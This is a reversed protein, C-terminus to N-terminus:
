SGTVIYTNTASARQQVAFLSNASAARTVTTTATAGTGNQLLVTGDSAISANGSAPPIAAFSFGSPLGASLTLTYAALFELVAGNYSSSNALNITTNGAIQVTSGGPNTIYVPIAAAPNSVQNPPNSNSM